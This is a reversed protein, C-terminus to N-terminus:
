ERCQHPLRKCYEIFFLDWDVEQWCSPRSGSRKTCMKKSADYYVKEEDSMKSKENEVRKKDVKDMHHICSGMGIVLLIFFLIAGSFMLPVEYKKLLSNEYKM